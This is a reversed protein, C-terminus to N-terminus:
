ASGHQVCAACVAAKTKKKKKKKRRSRGRTQNIVPKTGNQYRNPVTEGKNWKRQEGGNTTTANCPHNEAIVNKIINGTRNEDVM